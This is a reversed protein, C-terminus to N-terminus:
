GNSVLRRTRTAQFVVDEERMRACGPQTVVTAHTRMRAAGCSYCMGFVQVVKAEKSGCEPKAM